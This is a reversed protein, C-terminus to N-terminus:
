NYEYTPTILKAKEIYETQLIDQDISEAPIVAVSSFSDGLMEQFKAVASDIAKKEDAFVEKDLESISDAVPFYLRCSKSITNEIVVVTQVKKVDKWTTVRSLGDTNTVTSINSTRSAGLLIFETVKTNEADWNSCFYRTFDFSQGEKNTNFDESSQFKLRDQSEVGYTYTEFHQFITDSAEDIADDVASIEDESPTDTPTDGSEGGSSSGDGSSGSGQSSAEASKKLIATMSALYYAVSRNGTSGDTLVNYAKDCILNELISALKAVEETKHADISSKLNDLSTKVNVLNTNVNTIETTNAEIATKIDTLAEVLAETDPATISLSM